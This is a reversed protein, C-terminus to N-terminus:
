RLVRLRSHIDRRVVASRERRPAGGSDRMAPHGACNPMNADTQMVCCTRVWLGDKSECRRTRERLMVQGAGKASDWAPAAPDHAALAEHMLKDDMARALSIRLLEYFIMRERVRRRPEFAHVGPTEHTNCLERLLAPRGTAGAPADRPRSGAVDAPGASRSLRAQDDMGGEGDGPIQASGPGGASRGMGVRSYGTGGRGRAAVHSQLAPSVALGSQVTSLATWTHQENCAFSRRRLRQWRM